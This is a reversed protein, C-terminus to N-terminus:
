YKKLKTIKGNSRHIALVGNAFSFTGSLASAGDIRAALNGGRVTYIGNQTLFPILMLCHGDGNFIFRREMNKGDMQFRGTWEGKLPQTADPASGQRRYAIDDMRFADRGNWELKSKEEPGTTTSPPFVIQNGELRYPMDVIAGPSFSFTGDARFEYLGGIGGHSTEVSRWRGAITQTEQAPLAAALALVAIWVYFQTISGRSNAANTMM